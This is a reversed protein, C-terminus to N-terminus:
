LFHMMNTQSLPLVAALLEYFSKTTAPNQQRLCNTFLNQQPLTKSGAAAFGQWLM